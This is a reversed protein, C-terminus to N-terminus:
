PLISSFLMYKSKQRKSLIEKRRLKLDHDSILVFFSTSRNIEQFVTTNNLQKLCLEASVVKTMSVMFLWSTLCALFLVFVFLSSCSMKKSIHLGQQYFFPLYKMLLISAVKFLQPTSSALRKM